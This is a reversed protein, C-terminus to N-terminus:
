YTTTEINKPTNELSKPYKHLWGGGSESDNRLNNLTNTQLDGVTTLPGSEVFNRGRPEFRL